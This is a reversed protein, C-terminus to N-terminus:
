DTNSIYLYMSLKEKTNIKGKYSKTIKPKLYIKNHVPESDINKHQLWNKGFKM